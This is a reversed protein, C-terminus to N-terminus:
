LLLYPFRREFPSFRKKKFILYGHFNQEIFNIITSYLYIIVKISKKKNILLTLM